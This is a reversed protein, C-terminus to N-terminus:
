LSCRHGVTTCTTQRLAASAERRISLQERVALFDRLTVCSSVTGWESQTAELFSIKSYDHAHLCVMDRSTRYYLSNFFGIALATPFSLNRGRTAGFGSFPNQHFKSYTAPIVVCAFGYPAAVVHTTEACVHCTM